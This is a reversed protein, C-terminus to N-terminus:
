FRALARNIPLSCVYAAAVSVLDKLLFASSVTFFSQTVSIQSLYAYQLVGCLHCILLGAFGLLLSVIRRSEKGMGALFAFPLFGIIFGGTVGIIKHFGGSFGAFVPVGVLGLLVYILISLTGDRKGLTYGCLAVAFTQLTLPIGFPLMFSVQSLVATIAAFLAMRVMSRLRERTLNTETSM